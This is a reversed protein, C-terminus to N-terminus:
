HRACPRHTHTSPVVHWQQPGPMGAPVRAHKHATHEIASTNMRQRVRERDRVKWCLLGVVLLDLVNHLDHLRCLGGENALEVFGLVRQELTLADARMRRRAQPALAGQMRAHVPAAHAARRVCASCGGCTAGASAKRTGVSRRGCHVLAAHLHLADQQVLVLVAQHPGHLVQQRNGGCASAHMCAYPWM